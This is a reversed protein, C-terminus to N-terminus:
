DLNGQYLKNVEYVLNTNHMAAVFNSEVIKAVRERSWMCGRGGEVLAIVIGGVIAGTGLTAVGGLIFGGALSIGM